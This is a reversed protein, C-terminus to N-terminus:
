KSRNNRVVDSSTYGAQYKGHSTTWRKGGSVYKGRYIRSKIWGAVSGSYDSGVYMAVRFNSLLFGCALTIFVMAIYFQKGEVADLVDIFWGSVSQISPIIIDELIKSIM